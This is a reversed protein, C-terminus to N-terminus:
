IEIQLNASEYDIGDGWPTQPLPRERLFGGCTVHKGGEGDPALYDVTYYDTAAPTNDLSIPFPAFYHAFVKKNSAHLAALSPRDYPLCMPSGAADPSATSDSSTAADTPAQLAHTGCAALALSFGITRTRM